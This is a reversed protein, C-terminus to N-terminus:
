ESLDSADNRVRFKGIVVGVIACLILEAAAITSWYITGLADWGDAQNGSSTLAAFVCTAVLVALLWYLSLRLQRAKQRWGLWVIWLGPVLAIYAFARAAKFALYPLSDM